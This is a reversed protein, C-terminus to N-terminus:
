TWLKWRVSSHGTEIELLRHEYDYYPRGQANRTFPQDQESAKFSCLLANGPIPDISAVGNSFWLVGSNPLVFGKFRATLYPVKDAPLDDPIEGPGHPTQIRMDATALTSMLLILVLLIPKM